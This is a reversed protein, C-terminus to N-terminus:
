SQSNIHSTRPRERTQNYKNKADFYILVFKITSTMTENLISFIAM